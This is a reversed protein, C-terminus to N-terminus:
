LRCSQPLGIEVLDTPQCSLARALSIVTELKASNINKQRQEYQQITRLPVSSLKALQSQSLGAQLRRAKLNTNEKNLRYLRNMEDVFQRIDTEHYKSYMDVVNKIPIYKIIEIFALATKWQYYALAWGTWYEASRNYSYQPKIIEKRNEGVSDLVAYALEVGSKGALISTDGNEFRKAIGSSIFLNFFDTIDYRLDYVAFDIMRGLLVRAKELYARDYACIM